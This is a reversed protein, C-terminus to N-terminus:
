EFSVHLPNSMPGKIDNEGIAQVRFYYDQEQEIRHLFVMKPMPVEGMSEFVFPCGQCDDKQRVAMYIRFAEPQIKANVPDVVHDWSLAIQNKDM